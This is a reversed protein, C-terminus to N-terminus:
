AADELDALEVVAAFAGRPGIELRFSVVSGKVMSDSLEQRSVFVLQGQGGNTKVEIWGYPRDGPPVVLIGDADRGSVLMAGARRSKGAGTPPLALFAVGVGPALDGADEPYVMDQDPNFYFSEGTTSTAFGFHKDPNWQKVSGVFKEVRAPVPANPTSTKATAAVALPASPSTPREASATVLESKVGFLQLAWLIEHYEVPNPIGKLSVSQRNGQYGDADRHVVAGFKSHVRNFNTATITSKDVFIAQASAAACLRAAKDINMGVYDVTGTPTVFRTAPGTTIGVTVHFDIKGKAGDVVRSADQIAEQVDIAVQIADPGYDDGQYFVVVGDGLFKIAVDNYGAVRKAVTDYLFGIQPLWGSEPMTAKMGTSNVMDFFQCTVFVKSAVDAFAEYLGPGAPVEGATETFM